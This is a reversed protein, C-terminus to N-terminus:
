ITWLIAVYRLCNMLVDSMQKYVTLHNFLEIELLEIKCLDGFNSPELYQYTDTIILNLM